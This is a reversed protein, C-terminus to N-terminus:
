NFEIFRVNVCIAMYHVSLDLHKNFHGMNQVHEMAKYKTLSLSNRPSVRSEDHPSLILASPNPGNARVLGLGRIEKLDYDPRRLTDLM